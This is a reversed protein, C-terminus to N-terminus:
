KKDTLDPRLSAARGLYVHKIERQSLSSNVHIMVRICMTVSGPVPIERACMMPVLEWGPISRIAMAPFAANLDETMTAFVSAIEEPQFQNVSIIEELLERTAKYIASETNEEVTTAGRIGRIM